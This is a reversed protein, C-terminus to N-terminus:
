LALPDEGEIVPVVETTEKLKKLESEEQKIRRAESKIEKESALWKKDIEVTVKCPIKIGKMLKKIKSKAGEADKKSEYTAAVYEDVEPVCIKKATNKMPDVKIRFIM